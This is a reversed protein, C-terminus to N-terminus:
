KGEKIEYLIKLYNQYRVENIEGRKVAEIVGCIGATEHTCSSSFKCAPIFPLFDPYYRSLEHAEVPLVLRADLLSFGSTDAIYGKGFKFLSTMRTTQKGRDVKKSLQGIEASGGLANILSSKGVASQGAFACIGKIKCSLAEIDNTQASIFLVPVVKNYINKVNSVFGKEAIDTKNVVLFPKVDNVLAYIILKDVLTFDPKPSPAIVIFLRELNALPPRILLNKRPFIDTIVDNIEVKDGVYLGKKKINGLARLSKVEDNVEVDYLGANKKILLGKM